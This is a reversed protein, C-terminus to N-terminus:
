HERVSKGGVGAKVESAKKISRSSSASLTEEPSNGKGNGRGWTEEYIKVPSTM